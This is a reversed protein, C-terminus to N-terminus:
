LQIFYRTNDDGPNIWNAKSRQQLFMEALHISKRFQQHIIKEQEQLEVDSPKEHLKTQALQLAARDDEAENLINRFNQQNLKKLTKKLIKLKKIVQLMSYGEIHQQWAHAVVEKFQPHQTWVNCFKFARKTKSAGIIKAIKLPCHDSTGEVLFNAHVVSMTDLWERNVFAWDIKSFIRKDGHKDNWTYRCGGCPLEILECTDICDQFQMVEGMSVPVGGIRNDAQLVSNFDGLILWPQNIRM